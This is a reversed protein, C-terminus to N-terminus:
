IKSFQDNGLVRYVDLVLFVIIILSRSISRVYGVTMDVVFTVFCRGRMLGAALTLYAWRRRQKDGAYDHGGGM